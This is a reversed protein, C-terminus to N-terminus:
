KSQSQGSFTLIFDRVQLIVSGGKFVSYFGLGGLCLFALLIVVPIFAKRPREPNLPQKQNGSVLGEIHSSDFINMYDTGEM